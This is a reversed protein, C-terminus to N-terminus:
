RNRLRPDLEDRLADGLLSFGLVALTMAIGPFLSLYPAQWQTRAEALMRGWSPDPPRVGLGLFALAGEALIASSVIASSYVLLPSILNAMLYFVVIRADSAGVVRASEVYPQAMTSLVYSRVIRVLGSTYLLGLGIGISTTERGLAQVILMLLVLGPFALFMDIVRQVALDIVGGAYASLTGIVVACTVGIAAAMLALTISSRAGVVVRAFYDRGLNDTGFWYASSPGELPTSALRAPDGVLNAGSAAVLIFSVVILLGITGLPNRMM